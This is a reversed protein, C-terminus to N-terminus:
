SNSAGRAPARIGPCQVILELESYHSGPDPWGLEWFHRKQGIYSLRRDVRLVDTFAVGHKDRAIRM